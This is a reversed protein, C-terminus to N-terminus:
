GELTAVRTELAEIRAMAEQLAKVAKMYLISSKVTKTTTGLDTMKGEANLQTDKEETVLGNMGATELEQAVVGLQWLDDSDGKASVEEKLKYKRIKLAKIDNWQSSADKIQEKLKEDSLVGYSNNVNRVDGTNNIQLRTASSDACALFYENGDNDASGPTQLVMVYPNNANINTFHHAVDGSANGSFFWKTSTNYARVNGDGDSLVLHNNSTRIDLSDQNGNYSGLITNKSGTTVEAGSGGTSPDYAGVFTNQDGTTVLGADSGVCTNYQGDDVAGSLTRYGVATNRDGTTIGDGTLSGVLTNNQGTSITAGAQYGVATNQADTASSFNQQNLAGRGVATSKSGQTDSTLASYGIAVNFDADTFADGAESGIFTNQLGTTVAGGANYGVATNNANTSSAFTQNSLADYGIATSRHGAVDAGLTGYGLAVNTIGTTFANGSESGVLTNLTGTTIATGAQYGVAVNHADGGANLAKLAQYGIAVNDGHGDEAKLAEFGIAVNNDGTTLATGAEDGITVNYNGGSTISNGANVGARFNSTGATSSVLDGNYTLTGDITLAEINDNTQDLTFLSIFADNDENRIKLINNTTDYFLQNAYTTSPASTGSNTSGLAQLASNLDSRFSAFGQNAISLDNQSM